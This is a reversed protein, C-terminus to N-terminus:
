ETVEFGLEEVIRCFGGFYVCVSIQVAKRLLWACVINDKSTELIAREIKELEEVAKANYDNLKNENDFNFAANASYESELLSSKYITELVSKKIQYRKSKRDKM